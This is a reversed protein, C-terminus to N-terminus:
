VGHPYFFEIPTKGNAQANFQNALSGPTVERSLGELPSAPLHQERRLPTGTPVWGPGNGNSLERREGNTRDM